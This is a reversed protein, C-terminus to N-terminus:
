VPACVRPGRRRRGGRAWSRIDRQDCSSSRGARWGRGRSVKLQAARELSDIIGPVKCAGASKRKKDDQAVSRRSPDVRLSKHGALTRELRSNLPILGSPRLAPRGHLFRIVIVATSSCRAPSLHWRLSLNECSKRASLGSCMRAPRAKAQWGGCGLGSTVSTASILLSGRAM